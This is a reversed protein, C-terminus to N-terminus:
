FPPPMGWFYDIRFPLLHTEGMGGWTGIWLPNYSGKAEKCCSPGCWLGVWQYSKCCLDRLNKLIWDPWLLILRYALVFFVDGFIFFRCQRCIRSYYAQQIKFAHIYFIFNCIHQIEHYGTRRLMKYILPFIDEHRRNFRFSIKGLFLHFFRRQAGRYPCLWDKAYSWFGEIGNIHSRGKPKGTWVGM